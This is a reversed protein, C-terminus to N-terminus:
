ANYIEELTPAYVGIHRITVSAARNALNIAVEVPLGTLIMYAFTSLFTDGAGCVDIVDIKATKFIHNDYMAGEEGKTVILKSSPFSTAKNFEPENIKIYAGEFRKLDTKKTDIFVPKGISIIKEVLEYTVTGKEYDSIVFADAEPFKTDVRVPVKLKQDKDIRLVQQKSKKDIMRTKISPNGLYSTVEIGLRGLNYAVNGAMGTKYEVHEPVFIPVPAEPSIRDITGYQYEDTCADGILIVKLQKQPRNTM